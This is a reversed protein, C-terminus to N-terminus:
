SVRRKAWRLIGWALPALAALLLVPFLQLARRPAAGIGAASDPGTGLDDGAGGDDAGDPGTSYLAYDPAVAVGPGAPAAAAPAETAAPAYRYPRGWADVPRGGRQPVSPAYARLAAGLVLADEPLAGTARRHTEIAALMRQLDARTARVPDDGARSPAALALLATGAVLAVGSRRM